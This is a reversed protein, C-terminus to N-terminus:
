KLGDEPHGSIPRFMYNQMIFTHGSIPKANFRALVQSLALRNGADASNAEYSKVRKGSTTPSFLDGFDEQIKRNNVRWPAYYTNPKHLSATRGVWLYALAALIRGTTIPVELV